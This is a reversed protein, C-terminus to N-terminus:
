PREYNAAWRGAQTIEWESNSNDQIRRVADKDELRRLISHISDYNYLNGSIPEPAEGLTKNLNMAEVVATTTKPGHELQKLVIKQRDTVNIGPSVM